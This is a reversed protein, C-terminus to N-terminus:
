AAHLERASGRKTRIALRLGLAGFLALEAVAAVPSRGVKGLLTLAFVFWLYQVGISHLTRWRRAGLWAATTDFSTAAMAALFVYGMGGIVLTV